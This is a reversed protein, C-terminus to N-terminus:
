WGSHCIIPPVAAIFTATDRTKTLLRFERADGRVQCSSGIHQDLVFCCGIMRIGVRLLDKPPMLHAYRHVAPDLAEQAM